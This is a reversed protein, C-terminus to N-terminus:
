FGSESGGGRAGSGGSFGTGRRPSVSGSPGTPTNTRAGYEAFATNPDTTQTKSAGAGGNKCAALFVTIGFV